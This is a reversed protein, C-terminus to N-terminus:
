PRVEPILSADRCLAQLRNQVARRAYAYATAPPLLRSQLIAVVGLAEVEFALQSVDTDAPLEGLAVAERALRELLRMWEGFVEALRDRVAGPRANYEFEATVF